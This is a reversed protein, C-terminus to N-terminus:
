KSLKYRVKYVKDSIMTEGGSTQVIVDYFHIQNNATRSKFSALMGESFNGDMSNFVNSEEGHVLAMKFGLCKLEGKEPSWFRPSDNLCEPTLVVAESNGAEKSGCWIMNIQTQANMWIGLSSLVAILM